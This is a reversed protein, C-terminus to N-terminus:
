LHGTAIWWFKWDLILKLGARCGGVLLYLGTESWLVLVALAVSAVVVGSVVVTAPVLVMVGAAAVSDDLVAAAVSAGVLLWSQGQFFLQVWLCMERPLAFVVGTIM